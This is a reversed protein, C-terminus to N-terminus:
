SFTLGALVQQNSLSLRVNRYNPGDETITGFVADHTTTPEIVEGKETQSPAATLAEPEKKDIQMEPTSQYHNM